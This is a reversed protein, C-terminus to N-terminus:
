HTPTQREPAGDGGPCDMWGLRESSDNAVRDEVGTWNHQTQIFSLIIALIKVYGYCM